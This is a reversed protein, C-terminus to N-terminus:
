ENVRKWGKEMTVGDKSVTYYDGDEDKIRYNAPMWKGYKNSMHRAEAEIVKGKHFGGYNGTYIVKIKHM